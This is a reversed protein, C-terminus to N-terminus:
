CMGQVDSCMSSGCGLCGVSSQVFWISLCPRQYGLCSGLFAVCLGLCGVYLCLCGVCSGLCGFMVGSLSCTMGFVRHRIM